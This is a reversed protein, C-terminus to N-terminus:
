IISYMLGGATFMGILLVIIVRFVSEALMRLVGHCRPYYYTLRDLRLIRDYVIPELFDMPVYFQLM